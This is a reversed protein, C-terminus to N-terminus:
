HRLLVFVEHPAQDVREVAVLEVRQVAQESVIEDPV